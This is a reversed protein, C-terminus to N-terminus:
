PQPTGGPADYHPRSAPRLTNYIWLVFGSLSSSVSAIFAKGLVSASPPEGGSSAWDQVDGLFGVLSLSFQTVFVVVSIKIAAFAAPHNLRLSAIAQRIRAIM